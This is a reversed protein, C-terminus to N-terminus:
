FGNKNHVGRSIFRIQPVQYILFLTKGAIFRGEKFQTVIELAATKKKGGKTQCLYTIAKIYISLSDPSSLFITSYLM